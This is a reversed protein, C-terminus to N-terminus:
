VIFLLDSCSQSCLKCLVTCFHLHPSSVKNFLEIVFYCCCLMFDLAPYKWAHPGMCNCLNSVWSAPGLNSNQHKQLQLPSHTDPHKARRGGNPFPCLAVCQPNSRTATSAKVCCGSTTPGHIAMQSCVLVSYEDSINQFALCFAWHSFESWTFHLRKWLWRVEFAFTALLVMNPFCLSEGNQWSSDFSMPSTNFFRSFQNTDDKQPHGGFRKFRTQPSPM